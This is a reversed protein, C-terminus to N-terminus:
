SATSQHGANGHRAAPGGFGVGDQDGERAPGGGDVIAGGRRLDVANGDGVVARSEGKSEVGTRDGRDDGGVRMKCNTGLLRLPVMLVVKVALPVPLELAVSPMWPYQCFLVTAPVQVVRVLPPLIALATGVTMGLGTPALPATTVEVKDTLLM